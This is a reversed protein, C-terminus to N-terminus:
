RNAGIWNHVALLARFCGEDNPSDYSFVKYRGDSDLRIGKRLLGGKGPMSDDLLMQYGALQVGYSAHMTASTKRDVLYVDGGRVRVVGDLTGAFRFRESYLRQETMLVEAGSDTKFRRWARVYGMVTESTADDDLDDTDDLETALHVAVGLRRKAELIQPPIASFDPRIPALIQTVSPVAVGDIRYTHSAEDFECLPQTM